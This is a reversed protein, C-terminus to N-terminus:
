SGSFEVAPDDAQQSQTKMLADLQQTAEIRADALAVDDYDIHGSRGAM